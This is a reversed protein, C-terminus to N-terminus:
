PGIVYPSANEYRRLMVLEVFNLREWEGRTRRAAADATMAPMKRAALAHEDVLSVADGAVVMEGAAEAGSGAVVAGVVVAGGVM